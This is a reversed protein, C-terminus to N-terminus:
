HVLVCLKGYMDDFDIGHKAIFAEQQRLYHFNELCQLAHALTERIYFNQSKIIFVTCKVTRWLIM